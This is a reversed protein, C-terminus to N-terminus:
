VSTKTALPYWVIGSEPNVSRSSLSRRPVEEEGRMCSGVDARCSMLVSGNGLSM